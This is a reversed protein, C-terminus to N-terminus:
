GLHVFCGVGKWGDFRFLGMRGIMSVFTEFRGKGIGMM